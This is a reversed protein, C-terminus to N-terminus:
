VGGRPTPPGSRFPAAPLPPPPYRWDCEGTAYLKWLMHIAKDRRFVDTEDWVSWPAGNGSHIDRAVYHPIDFAEAIDDRIGLAALAGEVCHAYGWGPIGDKAAYWAIVKEINDKNM